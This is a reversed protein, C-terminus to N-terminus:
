GSVTVQDGVRGAASGLRIEPNITFTETSSTDPANTTVTISYQGRALVPVEFSTSLQGSLDTTGTKVTTTGFKVTFTRDATFNAGTITVSTGATGSTPGISIKGVVAAAPTVVVFTALLSFVGAVSLMSLIKRYNM